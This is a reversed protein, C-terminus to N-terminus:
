LYFFCFTFQSEFCFGVQAAQEFLLPRQKVREKMEDLDQQYSEVRQREAKRYPNCALMIHYIIIPHKNMSSVLFYVATVSQTV